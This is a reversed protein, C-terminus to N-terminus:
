KQTQGAPDGDGAVMRLGLRDVHHAPEAEEAQHRPHLRENPREFRGIDDIDAVQRPVCPAGRVLLDGPEGALGRGLCNWGSCRRGLRPVRLLAGIIAPSSIVVMKPVATQSTKKRNLHIRNVGPQPMMEPKNPTWMRSMKRM